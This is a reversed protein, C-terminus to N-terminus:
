RKKARSAGEKNKALELVRDLIRAAVDMKDMMPLDV